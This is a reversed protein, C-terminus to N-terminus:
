ATDATTMAAIIAKRSPNEGLGAFGLANIPVLAPRVSANLPKALVARTSTADANNRAAAIVAVPRSLRIASLTRDRTPVSVRFTTTPVIKTPKAIANRTGDVVARTAQRTGIVSPIMAAKPTLLFLAKAPMSIIVVTCVALMQFTPMLVAAAWFMTAMPKM